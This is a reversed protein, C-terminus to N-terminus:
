KLRAAAARITAAADAGLAKVSPQKLLADIVVDVVRAGPPDKHKVTWLELNDPDNDSRIANRHHVREHPELDRGLKRSMVLRHQMVWQGTEIKEALYGSGANRVTGIPLAIGRGIQNRASVACSISCFTRRKGHPRIFDMGCHACKMSRNKTRKADSCAYGCLLQGVDVRTFMVGCQECPQPVRKRKYIHGCAQSCCMQVSGHPRFRTGCVACDRDELLRVRGM